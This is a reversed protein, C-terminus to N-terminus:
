SDQPKELHLKALLSHQWTGKLFCFSVGSVRGFLDYKNLIKRIISDDVKVNLM